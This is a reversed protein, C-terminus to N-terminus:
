HSMLCCIPSHALLDRTVGGFVWEGLRSHGYAGTVLLDAGEEQALRILQDAGSGERQMIVRPGGKIRHRALYAAVDDLRAEAREEDGVECIEAVTVRAAEHLLPLADQVARRAERVDKWAIVVHEARLASVNGPVFLAPRGLRLIAEGPDLSVYADQAKPVPGIVILDASRAERAVADVPFDVFPRWLLKPQDAGAVLHFWRAKETLKAEIEPISADLLVTAAIGDSTM